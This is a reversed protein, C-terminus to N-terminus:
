ILGEWRSQQKEGLVTGHAQKRERTKARARAYGSEQMATWVRGTPFVCVLSGALGAAMAFFLMEAGRGILEVDFVIGRRGSRAGKLMYDWARGSGDTGELFLDIAMILGM